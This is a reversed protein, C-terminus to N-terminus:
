HYVRRNDLIIHETRNGNESDNPRSITDDDEIISTETAAFTRACVFLGDDEFHNASKVCRAIIYAVRTHAFLLLRQGVSDRVCKPRTQHVAISTYRSSREGTVQSCNKKETPTVFWVRRLALRVCPRWSQGFRGMSRADGFLM